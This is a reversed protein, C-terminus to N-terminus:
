AAERTLTKYCSSVLQQRCVPNEVMPREAKPPVPMNLLLQLEETSYLATPKLTPARFSAMCISNLKIKSGAWGRGEAEEFYGIVSQWSPLTTMLSQLPQELVFFAGMSWTLLALLSSRGALVSGLDVYSLENRGLPFAISRCHTGVNIFTFSTCVTALHVLGGCTIALIAIM